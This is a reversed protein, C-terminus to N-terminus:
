LQTVHTESVAAIESDLLGRGLVARTRDIWDRWEPTLEPALQQREIVRVAFGRLDEFDDKVEQSQWSFSILHHDGDGTIETFVAHLSRPEVSAIRWVLALPAM